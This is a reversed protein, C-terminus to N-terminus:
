FNQVILVFTFIFMKVNLYYKSSTVPELDVPQTPSYSESETMEYEYSTDSSTLEQYELM